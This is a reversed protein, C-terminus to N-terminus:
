AGGRGPRALVEVAVEVEVMADLPLSAAGVAIRAHRGREGLADFFLSSAADVVAPHGAFGPESNVFGAVRVVRGIRDLSGLAAKLHALANVACLRAAKAAEAANGDGVKGTYAIRGDPGAPVQGSVFAMGGSVAVPVYAGAPAPPVPLEIGIESLREDVGM